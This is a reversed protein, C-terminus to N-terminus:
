SLFTLLLLFFRGNRPMIAIQYRYGHYLLLITGTGIWTTGTGMVLIPNTGTGIRTIGTGISGVTRTKYRQM